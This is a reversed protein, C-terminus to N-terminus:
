DSESEEEEDDQDEEVPAEKDLKAIKKQTATSLEKVKDAAKARARENEPLRELYEEFLKKYNDAARLAKNNFHTRKEESLEKWRRSVESM